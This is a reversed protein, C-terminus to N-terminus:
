ARAPPTVLVPTVFRITDVETVIFSGFGRLGCLIFGLGRRRRVGLGVPRVEAAGLRLVISGVEAVGLGLGVHGVTLRSSLMGNRVDVAEVNKLYNLHMGWSFRSVDNQM